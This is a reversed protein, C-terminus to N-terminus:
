VARFSKLAAHERHKFARRAIFVALAATGPAAVCGFVAAAPLWTTERILITM